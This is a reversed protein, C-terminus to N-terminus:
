QLQVLVTNRESLAETSVSSHNKFSSFCEEFSWAFDSAVCHTLTAICYKCHGAERLLVRLFHTFFVLSIDSLRTHDTGGEGSLFPCACVPCTAAPASVECQVVGRMRATVCTVAM